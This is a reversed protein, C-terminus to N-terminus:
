ANGRRGVVAALALGAGIAVAGALLPHVAAATYASSGLVPGSYDGREELAPGGVAHLAGAPNRPPEGKKQAATMTAEMVRDTVRPALKGTAVIAKGAGGVTVDREPTAACHLIARAVVAPHYLPPPLTPEEDMYNRAHQPFPTDISAPKVLTVSVPVGALELEMRLSDTFGKVAHKSACYMGQIPIARDSLISGVNILAGGYRGARGRFHRAAELSGYVTGWFNTEFVRRHDDTAIETMEGYVSTGANNVWTDFRGFREVAARALHAVAAEDGVDAEYAFAEGGARAIEDALERLADGNRAALVLKAGGKAAARATALGIGSSAGTVVMVQDNLKKLRVAM